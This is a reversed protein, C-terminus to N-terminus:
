MVEERLYNINDRLYKFIDSKELEIIGEEM